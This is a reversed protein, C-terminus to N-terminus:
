VGVAGVHARIAGHAVLVDEEPRRAFSCLLPREQTCALLRNCRVTRQAARRQVPANPRLTSLPPILHANPVVDAPFGHYVFYRSSCFPDSGM